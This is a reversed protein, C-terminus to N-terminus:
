KKYQKTPKASKATKPKPTEFNKEEKKEVKIVPKVEFMPKPKEEVKVKAKVEVKPEVQKPEVYVKGMGNNMDKMRSPAAATIIDGKKGYRCDQLLEYKVPM